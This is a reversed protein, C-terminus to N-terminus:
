GYKGGEQRRVHALLKYRKLGTKFLSQNSFPMFARKVFDSFFIQNFNLFKTSGLHSLNDWIICIVKTLNYPLSINIHLADESNLVM